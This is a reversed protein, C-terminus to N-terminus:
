NMEKFGLKLHFQFSNENQIECDSAFESCGKSKIWEECSKVLKKAIGKRRCKSKVYVGELYGVPSSNTGEVYDTRLGCFAFGTSESMKNAIFFVKNEDSMLKEIKIELDKIEHKPWLLIAM